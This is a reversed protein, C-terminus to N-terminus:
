QKYLDKILLVEGKGISLIKCIDDISIGQEILRKVEEVNNSKGSNSFDNEIISEETVQTGKLNDIDKSLNKIDMQLVGITEAFDRRLNQIEIEVETITDTRNTLVEKFNTKERKFEKRNVWILLIGITVILIYIIM